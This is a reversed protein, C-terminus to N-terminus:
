FCSDTRYVDYASQPLIWTWRSGVRVAHFVHFSQAREETKPNALTLRVRIEKGHVPKDRGPMAFWRDNVSLIRVASLTVKIPNRRECRVYERKPAVQQHEPNLTAWASAYDNRVVSRVVATMFRSVDPTTAASSTTGGGGSAVLIAVAAVALGVATVAAATVVLIRRQGKARTEERV